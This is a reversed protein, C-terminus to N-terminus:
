SKHKKKVLTKFKNANFYAILQETDQLGRYPEWTDYEESYGLWRVLFEMQTKRNRNGRHALIREIHFEQANQIAVEKPVVRLPDYNFPRLASIHTDFLKGTLLNELTYIDGLKNQVQYPGENPMYAKPRNKGEPPTYLVYSTIPYEAYDEDFEQM